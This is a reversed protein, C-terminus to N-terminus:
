RNLAVREHCVPSLEPVMSMHSVQVAAWGVNFLSAALAYYEVRWSELMPRVAELSWLGFVMFFCIAVMFTGILHWIKRRGIQVNGLTYHLSSSGDSLLGVLPTAVADALQGSLMVVGAQSDTLGPVQELYVLLYTFWCAACMDNLVHGVSFAWFQSSSLTPTSNNDTSKPILPLSQHDHDEQEVLVMMNNHHNKNAEQYQEKSVMSYYIEKQGRCCVQFTPKGCAIRHSVIVGGNLKICRLHHM